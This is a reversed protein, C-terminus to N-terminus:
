SNACISPNTGSTLVVLLLFEARCTVVLADTCKRRRKRANQLFDAEIASLAKGGVFLGAYVGLKSCTDGRVPDHILSLAGSQTYM